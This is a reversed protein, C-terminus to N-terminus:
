SILAVWRNDTDRTKQGCDRQRRQIPEKLYKLNGKIKIFIEDTRWTSSVNTKINDVYAKM